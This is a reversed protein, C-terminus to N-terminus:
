CFLSGDKYTVTIVEDERIMMRAGTESDTEKACPIKKLDRFVGNKLARQMGKNNTVIWELNEKSFTARVGDPFLLEADRNAIQRIVVGEKTILRDIEVNNNTLL